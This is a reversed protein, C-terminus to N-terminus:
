ARGKELSQSTRARYNCTFDVHFIHFSVVHLAFFSVRARQHVEDLAVIHGKAMLLGMQLHM